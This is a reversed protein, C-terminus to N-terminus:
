PHGAPLPEPDTVDLGAGAIKAAQLAEILAATDVIGGRSINVLVANARMLGFEKPGVLHRTAADLPLALVVADARPLVAALEGIPLVEDALAHPKPRRTLAIVRAGFARLLRAIEQGISGFGCIAVTLGAPSSMDASMTRNWEGKLQNAHMAPLRREVALLLAVAHTAVAPAYADGANTVIVGAPVGQAQANEFGQTLLQLWRLRKARERVTQAVQRGYVFDPCLLADAGAIAAALEAPGAVVSLGEGLVAHLREILEAKAFAAWLVIRM